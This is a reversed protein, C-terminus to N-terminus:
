YFLSSLLIDGSFAGSVARQFWYRDGFSGRFETQSNSNYVTVLRFIFSANSILTVVDHYYSKYYVIKKILFARWVKIM